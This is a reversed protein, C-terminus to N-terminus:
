CGDHPPRPILADEFGTATFVRGSPLGSTVGRWSVSTHTTSSASDQPKRGSNVTDTSALMPRYESTAAPSTMSVPTPPMVEKPWAAKTPM